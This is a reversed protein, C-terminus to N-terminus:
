NKVTLASVVSWDGICITVHQTKGELYSIVTDPNATCADYVESTMPCWQVTAGEPLDLQMNVPGTGDICGLEPETATCSVLMMIFLIVLYKM